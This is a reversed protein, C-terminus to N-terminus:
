EPDYGIELRGVQIGNQLGIKIYRHQPHIAGVTYRVPCFARYENSYVDYVDARAPLPVMTGPLTGSFFVINSDRQTTTFFADLQLSTIAKPLRYLIYDGTKGEVRSWDEKARAADKGLIFSVGSTREASKSDNEFEDVLIRYPARIAPCPGSPESLGSANKARIRYTYSDGPIATTDAFLPRYGVNADSATSDVVSWRRFFLLWRSGREVIYSSAGTSGQWSLKYPTEVKLLKPPSPVPVPPEPIGDIQHAKARFLRIVDLEGWYKGSEFGPWRHAPGHYYFGGDRNHQRMSWLLIGSMGSEIASDVVCRMSDVPMFGFEGVFYPKKGKAKARAELMLKIMQSAPRYFHTSLVDINPDSIADDLIVQSHTGEILLHNKDLTKVYAAIDRTWAFTGVELENGTEWGLIAKDEKFPVGTYTNVRNIMFVITKKFDAIVTSDTWFAEKPKGRFRAYDSIGGWWWWNDVFPIIIRVGVENAVQLVKDYARFAEENFVGPAEVHRIIEPEDKAKRISPTYLRVVKGGLQKIATLADRIEFEDAPRWPSPNTFEQNDEIYHLNPINFSIFRFENDGEMLRDAKTTVFHQFQASLGVPALLLFSALWLTHRMIMIVPKASPRAPRRSNM